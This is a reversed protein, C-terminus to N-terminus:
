AYEEHSYGERELVAKLAKKARYTLNKIQKNSKKLVTGADDYGMGEFYILHLVKSYDDPLQSLAAYLERNRENTLIVDEPLPSDATVEGADDLTVSLRRSKKRLFDYANNRGIKFLWTKFTATEKFRYRKVLIEMFTDAALDESTHWDNVYSNIFLILPHNYMEVLEALANNDGSLFRNYSSIGDM